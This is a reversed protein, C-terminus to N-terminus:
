NIFIILFYKTGLMDVLFIGKWQKLLFVFLFQLVEKGSVEEEGLFAFGERRDKEETNWIGRQATKFGHGLIGSEGKGRKERRLDM